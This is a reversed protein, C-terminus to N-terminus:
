SRWGDKNQVTFTSSVGQLKRIYAVGNTLNYHKNHDLESDFRNLTNTISLTLSTNDSTIRAKKCEQLFHHNLWDIQMAFILLCLSNSCM